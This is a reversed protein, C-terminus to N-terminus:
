RTKPSSQTESELRWGFVLSEEEPINNATTISLTQGTANRFEFLCLGLGTGSCDVVETYGKEILHDIVIGRDPNNVQSTNFVAQWGEQILLNRAESYTMNQRLKPLSQAVASLHLSFITSLLISQVLLKAM